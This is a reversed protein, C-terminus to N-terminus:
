FNFCRSFALAKQSPFLSKESAVADIAESRENGADAFVIWLITKKRKAGEQNSDRKPLFYFCRSFALAKQSPFLSKESAVADTAESRENGADAFVIWLITKKRKAGEQNSDRKFLLLLM